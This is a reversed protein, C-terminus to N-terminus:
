RVAQGDGVGANIPWGGFTHQSLQCGVHLLTTQRLRLLNIPPPRRATHTVAAARDLIFRGQGNTREVFAAFVGLGILLVGEAVGAAGRAAKHKSLRARLNLWTPDPWM